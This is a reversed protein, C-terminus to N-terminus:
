CTHGSMQVAKAINHELIFSIQCNLNVDYSQAATSPIPVATGAGIGMAPNQAMPVPISISRAAIYTLSNARLVPPNVQQYGLSSLNLQARIQDSSQGIFQQLYAERQMTNMTPSSACGYLMCSAAFLGASLIFKM